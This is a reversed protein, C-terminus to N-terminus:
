TQLSVNEVGAMDPFEHQIEAAIRAEVAQLRSSNTGGFDGFNAVRLERRQAENSLGFRSRLERERYQREQRRSEAQQAEEAAAREQAERVPKQRAEQQESTNSAHM